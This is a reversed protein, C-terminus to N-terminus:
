TDTYFPAMRSTIWLNTNSPAGGLTFPVDAYELAGPNAFLVEYVALNSSSTLPGTAPNYTGAGASDTTTRVMVGTILDNFLNHLQVVQPVEATAGSPINF